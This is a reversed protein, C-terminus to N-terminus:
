CQEHLPKAQRYVLDGLVNSCLDVCMTNCQYSNLDLEPHM